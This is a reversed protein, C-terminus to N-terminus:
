HLYPMDTCIPGSLHHTCRCSINCAQAAHMDPRDLQPKINCVMVAIVVESCSLITHADTRVQVSCQGRNYYVSPGVGLGATGSIQVSGAFRLSHRSLTMRFLM